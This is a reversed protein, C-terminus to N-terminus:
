RSIPHKVVIYGLKRIPDIQIESNLSNLIPGLVLIKDFKGCKVKPLYDRSSSSLYDLSNSDKTMNYLKQTLSDLKDSLLYKYSSQSVSDGQGICFMPALFLLFLFAKFVNM